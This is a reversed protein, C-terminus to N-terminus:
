AERRCSSFWLSDHVKSKKEVKGSFECCMFMLYGLYNSIQLIQPMFSGPSAAKCSRESLQEAVNRRLSPASM